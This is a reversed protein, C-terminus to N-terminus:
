SYPPPASPLKAQQSEDYKDDAKLAQQPKTDIDIGPANLCHHCFVVPGVPDSSIPSGRRDPQHLCIPPHM